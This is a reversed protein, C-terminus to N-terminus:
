ESLRRLKDALAPRTPDDTPIVELARRIEQVAEQKRGLATLVDVHTDIVTGHRPDLAVARQSYTLAEAPNRLSAPEATILYWALNNLAMVRGGNQGAVSWRLTEIADATQGRRAQMEALGLVTMDDGAGGIDFAEKFCRYADDWKQRRAYVVAMTTRPEWRKPLIELSRRAYDLARDDQGALAAETALCALVRHSHPNVREAATWLATASRWDRNRDITIVACSVALVVMVTAVARRGMAGSSDNAVTPANHNAPRAYKVSRTLCLDRGGGDVPSVGTGCRVIRDKRRAVSTCASALPGVCLCVGASPLYLLREAFVTGIVVPLNSVIGYTVLAIGLGLAVRGSRRWSLVMAVAVLAVWIMGQRLRPDSLRKVTDIAAYSYDCCLDAPWVMLRAALGFTVFPTAWRALWASDGPGLGETPTAIPNDMRKTMAVGSPLASGLLEARVALYVGITVVVPLYVRLARRRWWAADLPDGRRRRWWDLLAVVGVATVANEKCLLAAGLLLVAAVPRWLRKPAGPAGDHWYLLAAGLVGLAVAIDARGIIPNMPETHIPHVAFFVGAALAAWFSEFVALALYYLLVCVGAHLALNVARFTWPERSIAWQLAYSIKVLPRYHPPTGPAYWYGGTLLDGVRFHQVRPDLEIISHDDFLFPNRLSNAYLALCLLVLGAVVWCPNAACVRAVWRPPGTSETDTTM